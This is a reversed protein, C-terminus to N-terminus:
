VYHFSGPVYYDHCLLPKFMLIVDLRKNRSQINAAMKSIVAM